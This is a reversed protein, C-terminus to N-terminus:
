DGISKPETLCDAALWAKVDHLSSFVGEALQRSEHSPPLLDPILCSRMGGAQAAVLGSHADELVLCNAAPIGLAEQARLFIDPSPKGRSVMDGGIVVQFHDLIKHHLLRSKAEAQV